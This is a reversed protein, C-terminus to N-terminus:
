NAKPGPWRAYEENLTAQADAESVTGNQVGAVAERITRDMVIRPAVIAYLGVAVMAYGNAAIFAKGYRSPIANLLDAANRAWPEVEVPAVKWHPGRVMALLDFGGCVMQTVDDATLKRPRRTPKADADPTEGDIGVTVSKPPRGRRRKPPEGLLETLTEPEAM